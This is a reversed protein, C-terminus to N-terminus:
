IFYNAHITLMFQYVYCRYYYYNLNTCYYAVASKKSWGTCAHCYCGDSMSSLSNVDKLLRAV